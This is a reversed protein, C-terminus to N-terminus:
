PTKRYDPPDAIFVPIMERVKLWEGGVHYCIRRLFGASAPHAALWAMVNDDLAGQALIRDARGLYKVLDAHEHRTRTSLPNAKELACTIRDPAPSPVTVTGAFREEFKADEGTIPIALPGDKTEVVRVLTEVTRGDALVVKALQYKGSLTANADIM